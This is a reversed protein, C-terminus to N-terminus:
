FIHLVQRLNNYEQIYLGADFGDGATTPCNRRDFTGMQIQRLLRLAADTTQRMMPLDEPRTPHGAQTCNEKWGQLSDLIVCDLADNCVKSNGGAACASSPDALCRLEETYALCEDLQNTLGAYKATESFYGHQPCHVRQLHDAEHVVACKRVVEFHFFPFAVDAALPVDYALCGYAKGNCCVVVGYIKKLDGM